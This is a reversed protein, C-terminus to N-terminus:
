GVAEGGAGRDGDAVLSELHVPEVGQGATEVDGAQGIGHLDKELVEKTVLVPALDMGGVDLRHRVPDSALLSPPRRGGLDGEGGLTHEHLVERPDRRDDIQGGHTSRQRLHAAIGGGDVGEDGDLEDDVVGDDGLGRAEGRGEGGVDVDLVPAVDLTVLEQAPGLLSEVAEADYRRPGADAVLDVQFVQGSHHEGGLVALREGVGEHPGVGVRGHHVSEADEAPAHAADLGFRGHETLRERHENWGHDTKAQGPLQGLPGGGGIQHEGDGLQQAVVPHHALEDLHVSRSEGLERELVPGRDAVHCGFVAGGTHDERDVVDRQAVQAEGSAVPRVHSQDLGVGLFLAQEM